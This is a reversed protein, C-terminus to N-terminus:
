SIMPYAQHEKGKVSPMSIGELPKEWARLTCTVLGMECLWLWLEREVLSLTSIAIIISHM